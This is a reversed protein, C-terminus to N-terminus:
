STDKPSLQCHWATIAYKNAPNRDWVVSSCLPWLRSLMHSHCIHKDTKWMIGFVLQRHFMGWFSTMEQMNNSKHTFCFKKVHYKSNIYRRDSRLYIVWLGGVATARVTIVEVRPWSRAKESTLQLSWELHSLFYFMLSMRNCWGLCSKLKPNCVVPGSCAQKSM